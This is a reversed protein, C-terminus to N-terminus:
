EPSPAGSAAGDDRAVDGSPEDSPPPTGETAQEVRVLGVTINDHGGRANAWDVLQGALEEATAGEPRSLSDWVGRLDKASSAYNWLGDSCVLLWGSGAVRFGGLQPEPDPANPGLWKTIAHAQRGAEAVDRTVGLEISLQAMSDDTTLILDTHDDGFWYARSDGVNAVIVFGRHLLALVLTCAYGDSNDGAAEAISQNASHVAERLAQALGGPDDSHERDTLVGILADTARDVAIQSAVDSHPSTSVGDSVAVIASRNSTSSTAALALADQNPSAKSGVHTAGGAWPTPGRRVNDRDVGATPNGPEQSSM